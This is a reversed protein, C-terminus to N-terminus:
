TRSRPRGRSTSSPTWRGAPLTGSGFPWCCASPVARRDLRAETMILNRDPQCPSRRRRRLLIRNAPEVVEPKGVPAPGVVVDVTVTDVQTGHDADICAFLYRRSAVGPQNDGLGTPISRVLRFTLHDGLDVDVLAALAQGAEALDVTPQAALDMDKTTRSRPVRALMSMGGKLMWETAEGGAFVRCLFRDFRAQRIQADVSAASVGPGSATAAKKAAEKIAQELSRWDRYGNPEPGTETVGM